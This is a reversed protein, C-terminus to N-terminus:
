KSPLQQESTFVSFLNSWFNAIGSSEGATAPTEEVKSQEQQCSVKDFEKKIPEPSRARKSESEKRIM